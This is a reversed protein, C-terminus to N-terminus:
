PLLRLENVKGRRLTEGKGRLLVHRVTLSGDGHHLIEGHQLKAFPEGLSGANLVLGERFRQVGAAEHIHGCVTLRFSRSLEAVARSGVRRGWFVRDRAGYPPCHSLLVDHPEPALARIEGEGWEYPFGFRAPGAGGLGYVSLGALRANRRDVCGPGDLERPDHNGPVWLVDAGLPKLARLLFDREAEVQQLSPHRGVPPAVDGVWLVGDWTESGVAGLLRLVPDRAGHTDGIVLIRRTTM